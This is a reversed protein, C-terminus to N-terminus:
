ATNFDEATITTRRSRFYIMAAVEQIKRRNREFVDAASNGGLGFVHNLTAEPIEFTVPKRGDVATFDLSFSIKPNNDRGM